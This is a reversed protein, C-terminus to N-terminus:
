RLVRFLEMATERFFTRLQAKHLIGSPEPGRYNDRRVHLSAATLVYRPAVFLQVFGHASFM